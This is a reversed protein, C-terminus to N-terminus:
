SLTDFDKSRNLKLLLMPIKKKRILVAVRQIYKFNDQITGSHIFVDQNKDVLENLKPALKLALVKSILKAFSHIMTIPRYDAPSAAGVKKPLLVILANNLSELGRRDGNAFSQSMTGSSQGLWKTSLAPSDMRDLRGTLRSSRSLQM